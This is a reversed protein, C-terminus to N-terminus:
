LDASGVSGDLPFDFLFKKYGKSEKIYGSLEWKKPSYIAILLNESLM